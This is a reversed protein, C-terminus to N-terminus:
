AQDQNGDCGQRHQPAPPPHRARCQHQRRGEPEAEPTQVLGQGFVTRCRQTQDLGIGRLRQFPILRQRIFEEVAKEPQGGFFAGGPSLGGVKRDPGFGGHGEHQFVRRRHGPQDGVGRAPAGHGHADLALGAPPKVVADAHQLAVSLLARAIVLMVKNGEAFIHGKAIQGIVPEPDGSKGGLGPGAIGGPRPRLNQVKPRVKAADQRKDAILRDKGPQHIGGGFTRVPHKLGGVVSPEPDPGARELM